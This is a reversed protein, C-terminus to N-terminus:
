HQVERGSGSPVQTCIDEPINGHEPCLLLQSALEPHCTTCFKEPVGHEACYLGADASSGSASVVATEPSTRAWGPLLDPRILAVSAGVVVVALLALGLGLVIRKM